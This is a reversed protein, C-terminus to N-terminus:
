SNFLEAVLQATGQLLGEGLHLRRRNGDFFSGM